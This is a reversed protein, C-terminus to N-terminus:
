GSGHLNLLKKWYRPLTKYINLILFAKSTKKELIESSSYFNESIYVYFTFPPFSTVVQIFFNPNIYNGPKLFSKKSSFM